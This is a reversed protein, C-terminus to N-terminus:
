SLVSRSASAHRPVSAIFLPMLVDHLELLEIMDEVYADKEERPVDFPQRLYASFRMAERVTATGEHVDMQEAYATSREFDSGTPHGDVLIEGSVVGINKRKALVDLCTTKGAGSAGMLATLTGPKVYGHSVARLITRQVMGKPRRQGCNAYKREGLRANLKRTEPTEKAFLHFVPGGSHRKTIPFLDLILIVGCSHEDMGYAAELYSRGSTTNSGPRAGLLVSKIRGWALGPFPYKSANFGNRPVVHSDDCTFIWFLWKKMQQVPILYGTYSVLATVLFAGMRFAADYSSFFFGTYSFARNKLVSRGGTQMSLEGFADLCSTFMSIFIVSTRTFAGNSTSPQGFFAAGIIIALVKIQLGAIKIWFYPRRFAEQDGKTQTKYEELENRLDLALQSEKFAQELGRSHISVALFDATPQRSLSKFGLEEFYSRAQSSPGYYIQRGKYHLSIRQGLVDTMIRLSRAFDLATSADLGRTPNDWCFEDGVLTYRRLGHISNAVRSELSVAKPVPTKTSLAFALTQAVTLTAIHPDDDQNYVTEGKYTKEMEVADIGAYHVDGNISSYENRENAITKLFATCGSGPYGLVLDNRRAQVSKNLITKEDEDRAPPFGSFFRFCLTPPWPWEPAHLSFSYLDDFTQMYKKDDKSGHIVVQLDEWTVGVHKPPIGAAKNAENFRLSATEFTSLSTVTLLGKRSMRRARFNWRGIMVRNHQVAIFRFATLTMESRLKMKADAIAPASFPWEINEGYNWHVAKTSIYEGLAHSGLERGIGSQKKGGFPVNNYLVNYQNIWIQIVRTLKM